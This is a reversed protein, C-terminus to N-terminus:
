VDVVLRRREVGGPVRQPEVPRVVRRGEIREQAAGFDAAAEAGILAEDGLAAVALGRAVEAQAAIRGAEEAEQAGVGERGLGALDGGATGAVIAAEPEGALAAAVEEGLDLEVVLRHPDAP